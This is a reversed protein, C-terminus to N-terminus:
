ALQHAFAYAVAEARSHVGLKSLVAGIHNHVTFRSVGLKEAIADTGAGRALLRLVELERPTLYAPPTEANTGNGDHTKLVYQASAAVEHVFHELRKTRDINRLLHALAVVRGSAEYIPLISVNVWVEHAPLARLDFNHIHAGRRALAWKECRSRCVARGVADMGAMVEYCPRGEVDAPSRDFATAAAPNWHTITWKEDVVFMPDACTDFTRLVDPSLKIPANM